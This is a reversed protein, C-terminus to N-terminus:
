AKGEVQILASSLTVTLMCGTFKAPPWSHKTRSFTGAGLLWPQEKGVSAVM